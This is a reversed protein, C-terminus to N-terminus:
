SYDRVKSQIPKSSTFILDAHKFFTYMITNITIIPILIILTTINEL